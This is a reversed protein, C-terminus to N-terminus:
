TQSAMAPATSAAAATNATAAPPEAPGVGTVRTSAPAAIDDRSAPTIEAITRSSWALRSTYREPPDARQAAPRHLHEPLHQREDPGPQQQRHGVGRPQVREREAVVHGGGQALPHPADAGEADGA